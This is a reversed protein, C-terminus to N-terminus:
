SSGGLAIAALQDDTLEEANVRVTANVTTELKDGYRKPAMKSARWQKSGLVARATAADVEGNLCREEIDSMEDSLVEAQIVRAHAYKTAFDEDSALWRFLTRKDPMGDQLALRSLSNGVMIESLVKGKIEDANEHM